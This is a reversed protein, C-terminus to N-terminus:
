STICKQMVIFREAFGFRRYFGLVNENGEAISVRVTECKQGELWELALSMLKEGVGKGRHPEDVFISDIEGIPGDVTAICYGLNQDNDEVIFGIFRGRKSLDDMRKEFTLTSFHDKFYTSRSLHHANLNEWLPKIGDIHDKTVVKIRM